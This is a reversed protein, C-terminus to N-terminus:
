ATTKLKNDLLNLIATRPDHPNRDNTSTFESCKIGLKHILDKAQVGNKLFPEQQLGNEIHGLGCSRVGWHRDFITWNEAPQAALYDRVEQLTSEMTLAPAM